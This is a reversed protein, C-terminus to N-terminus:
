IFLIWILKSVVHCFAHAIMAYQIGHKRYLWGFALGVGGNLLFCRFIVLPTLGFLIDTVPLHGAAFLMASVVNAIILAAEINCNKFIKLLVFAVLSMMFLRLMVEEVVGGLIISGIIYAVSPKVLYSEGIAVVERGFWLLDFGILAVGGIVGWILGLIIPKKEFVIEDRWLGIRKALVIGVAGLVLGYGAYQIGSIIGLAVGDIGQAVIQERIEAPYSDLLYLGILFGGVLGCLTFTLLIKYYKKVFSKIIEKM